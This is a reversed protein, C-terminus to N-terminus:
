AEASKRSAYMLVAMFVVMEKENGGGEGRLISIGM